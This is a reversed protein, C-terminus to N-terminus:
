VKGADYKPHGIKKIEERVRKMQWTPIAFHDLLDPYEEFISQYEEGHFLNDIHADYEEARRQERQKQKRLMKQYTALEDQVVIGAPFLQSAIRKPIM